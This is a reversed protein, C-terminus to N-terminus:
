NGGYRVAVMLGFVKYFEAWRSRGRVGRRKLIIILHFLSLPVWMIVGTPRILVSAVMLMLYLLTNLSIRTYYHIVRNCIVYKTDGSSPLLSRLWYLTYYSVISVGNLKITNKYLLLLYVMVITSINVSSSSLSIQILLWLHVTHKAAKKCNFMILTVKYLYWDCM